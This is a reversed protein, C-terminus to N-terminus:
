GLRLKYADQADMKTCVLGLTQPPSSTSDSRVKEQQSRGLKEEKVDQEKGLGKQDDGLNRIMLVDMAGHTLELVCNVLNSRVHFNLQQARARTIPGYITQIPPIDEDDEGSSNSNNEVCATDL